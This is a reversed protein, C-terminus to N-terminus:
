IYINTDDRIVVKKADLFYRKNTSDFLHLRPDMFFLLWKRIVCAGFGNATVPLPTIPYAGEGGSLEPKRM